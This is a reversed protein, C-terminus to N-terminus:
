AVRGKTSSPIVQAKDWVFNFLRRASEAFRGDQLIVARPTPSWSMLALKEGYIFMPTPIFYEEPIARYDNPSTVVNTDGARVLMRETIGSSKLRKIHQSLFEQSLDNVAIAEDVHAILVEGGSDRLTEYVDNLLSQQAGQGEFTEVIRDKKKVGSGPTFEVGAEEFAKQITELSDRRGQVEGREILSIGNVTIGTVKALDSLKWDLLARAARIQDPNIM